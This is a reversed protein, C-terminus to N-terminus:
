RRLCTAFANISKWNREAQPPYHLENKLCAGRGLARVRVKKDQAVGSAIHINDISNNMKSCETENQENLKMETRSSNQKM